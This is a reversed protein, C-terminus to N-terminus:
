ASDQAEPCTELSRVGGRGIFDTLDGSRTSFYKFFPKLDNNAIPDGDKVFLLGILKWDRAADRKEFSRSVYDHLSTFRISGWFEMEQRAHQLGAVHVQETVNHAVSHSGCVVRAASVPNRLRPNGRSRM